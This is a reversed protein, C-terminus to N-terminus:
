EMYDEWEFGFLIGREYVKNDGVERKLDEFWFLVKRGKM